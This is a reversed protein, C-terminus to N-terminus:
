AASVLELKAKLPTATTLISSLLMLSL